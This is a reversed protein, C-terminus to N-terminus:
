QLRHCYDADSFNKWPNYHDRKIPNDTTCVTTNRPMAPCDRLSGLLSKSFDHVSLTSENGWNSDYGFSHVRVDQFEPDRPLWEKPWYLAPDGSKTWTSKSGGGLGHVFVLDAVTSGRPSFLTNLGYPGKTDESLDNGSGHRAFTRSLLSRGSSTSTSVSPETHSLPM